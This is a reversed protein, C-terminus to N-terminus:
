GVDFFGNGGIWDMQMRTLFGFTDRKMGVGPNSGDGNKGGSAPGVAM